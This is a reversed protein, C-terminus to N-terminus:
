PVPVWKLFEVQDNRGLRFGYVNQTDQNFLVKSDFSFLRKLNKDFKYTRFPPNDETNSVQFHYIVKNKEFQYLAYIDGSHDQALVRLFHYQDVVPFSNPDILDAEPVFGSKKLLKGNRDYVWTQGAEKSSIFIKGKDGIRLHPRSAGAWRFFGVRKGTKDYIHVLPKSDSLLYFNEQSDVECDAPPGFVASQMSFLVQPQYTEASVFSRTVFFLFLYIFKMM